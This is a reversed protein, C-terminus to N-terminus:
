PPEQLLYRASQILAGLDSHLENGRCGFLLLYFPLPIRKFQLRPIGTGPRAKYWVTSQIQVSPHDRTREERQVGELSRSKWYKLSKSLCVGFTVCVISIWFKIQCWPHGSYTFTQDTVTIGFNFNYVDSAKQTPPHLSSTLSSFAVILYTLQQSAVATM